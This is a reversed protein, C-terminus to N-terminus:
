PTPLTLNVQPSVDGVFFEGEAYLWNRVSCLVRDSYDGTVWIGDARRVALAMGRVKYCDGGANTFSLTNNLSLTALHEAPLDLVVEMWAARDGRNAPVEGLSRGNLLVQKGQYRPEPNVDFVEFRLKAATIAPLDAATITPRNPFVLTTDPLLQRSWLACGQGIAWPLPESAFPDADARQGVEGILWAEAHPHLDAFPQEGPRALAVRLTTPAARQATLDYCYILWGDGAALRPTAPQDNITASAIPQRLATGRLILYLDLRTHPQPIAPLSLELTPRGEADAVVHASTQLEPAAPPTPAASPWTPAPRLELLTVSCPPLTLENPAGAVFAAPLAHHAPYIERAAFSTAAPGRYGVTLDVPISLAQACYGPNRLAIIGHDGQWHAYGYPQGQRPDGGFMRTHQLTRWNEVAWRTTTGLARWREADLLEPSLYLEKLLVGRGYYLAVYDAWERLREHPGGLRNRKGHIIGHTMLASLPTPNHQQLYVRHFYVDRYSMEWERPSLQPFSRDFGFDSAGMWITDAHQLWWPSLWVNSTVNLFIDPQLEREFALLKLEADLNAEFGHRQTPLHGHGDAACNLANFDHKFYIINGERILRQLADRTAAFSRPGAICYSAGTSSVEYGQERAWAIDLKVGLLSLWLGMRSGHAELLRALPGFGNPYIDARVGWVSQPNQWGDDPQYSDMHLGYPQLLHQEFASATREFHELTMEADRVDYWTNYQLFSRAPRKITQLYDDFALPLPLGPPAVGLVMTKSSWTGDASRGPFHTLVFGNSTLEGLFGPYEVGFWWDDGLFVPLGRGGGRLPLDTRVSLLSLSDIVAGGSLTITKRLYPQDGVLWYRLDATLPPDACTLRVVCAAPGDPRPPQEARFSEASLTPGQYVTLGIPDADLQLLASGDARALRSLRWRGDRLSFECSIAANRLSAGDPRCDVAPDASSYPPLLAALFLLVITRKM